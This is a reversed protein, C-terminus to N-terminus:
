RLRRNCIEIALDLATELNRHDARGQGAIDYATGHGPSTVCFPLGAYILTAEGFAVAKMAINGQDHYLYVIGDLPKNMAQQWITDAPYPGSIDFQWRRRAQQIAPTITTQEEEGFQGGEGAHPNLAAVGIRPQPIDFLQMTKGLFEITVVIEDITLRDPIDRFPVHGVVTCRFLNGWKVIAKVKSVDALEALLGFEDAYSSGALHMAEKNLPAMVFGDLTGNSTLYVAKHISALCNRGNYADAVGWQFNPNQEVTCDLVSILSPDTIFEDASNISLIKCEVGTIQRALSLVKYSGLVLIDCCSRIRSNDLIKLVIEPGIGAADGMVIGIKPQRHTIM